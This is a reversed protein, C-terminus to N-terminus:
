LHSGACVVPSYLLLMMIRCLCMMSWPQSEKNVVDDIEAQMGLQEEEDEEEMGEMTQLREEM